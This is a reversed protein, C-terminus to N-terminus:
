SELQPAGNAGATLQVRRLRWARARKRSLRLAAFICFASWPLIRLRTNAGINDSFIAIMACLLTAFIVLIQEEGGRRKIIDWVGRIWIPFLVWIGVAEPLAVAQGAARIQWPFPGLVVTVLSYLYAILLSAPNHFDLSVRISSGGNSYSSQRFSALEETSFLAMFQGTAFWGKGLLWPVVAAFVIVCSIVFWKLRPRARWGIAMYILVAMGLALAAYGRFPYLAMLSIGWWLWYGKRKSRFILISLYLGWLGLMITISDKLLQTSYFLGSPYVTLLLGTLNVPHYRSRWSYPMEGTLEHAIMVGIWVSVAAALINLFKGLLLSPGTLSFLVVLIYPYLNAKFDIAVGSAGILAARWYTVDDAGAALPFFGDFGNDLSYVHILVGAILRVVLATLGWYLAPKYLRLQFAKPQM